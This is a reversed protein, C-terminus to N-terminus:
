RRDRRAAAHPAPPAGPRRPRMASGECGPSGSGRTAAGGGLTLRVEHTRGDALRPLLPPDFPRGDLTAGVVGRTVGRPNDVHVHVTTAGGRLIVEFGPPSPTDGPHRPWGPRAGDPRGSPRRGECGPWSAGFRHVLDLRGAGDVAALRLRRRGARLARDPLSSGGELDRVHLRFGPGDLTPDAQGRAPLALGRWHSASGADSVLVRSRGNSLVHAQRFGAGPRLRWPELAPPPALSPRLPGRELGRRMRRPAAAPREFLLAETTRVVPEAHFRRVVPAGNLANHIAVLILGQHHAMFSRVVAVACARGLLSDAPERLLLAPMLYEFM